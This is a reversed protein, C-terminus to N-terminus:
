KKYNAKKFGTSNSEQSLFCSLSSTKLFTMEWEDIIKQIAKKEGRLLFIPNM